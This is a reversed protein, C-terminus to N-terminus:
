KKAKDPKRILTCCDDVMSGDIRKAYESIREFGCSFHTKLSAMNGKNVHSYVPVLVLDMASRILRQAYGQQRYGPRTELAALLLGDEYPELRLASVYHGDEEWIAYRANNTKFFVQELYAYFDQEAQIIGANRDMHGYLDKANERNGEEYVCMLEGFRLNSLSDFLILM